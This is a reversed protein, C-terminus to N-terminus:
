SLGYIYSNRAISIGRAQPLISDPLLARDDQVSIWVLSPSSYHNTLYKDHCNAHQGQERKTPCGQYRCLACMFAIHDYRGVTTGHVETIHRGAACEVVIDKTQVAM